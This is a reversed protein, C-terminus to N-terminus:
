DLKFISMERPNAYMGKWARKGKRERESGSHWEWVRGGMMRNKSLALGNQLQVCRMLMMNQRGAGKISAKGGENWWVSALCSFSFLYRLSTFAAQYPAPGAESM